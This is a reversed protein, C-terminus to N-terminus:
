GKMLNMKDTALTEKGRYVAVVIALGVAAEAAAIAMVFLAFAQGVSGGPQTAYHRAFAVFALNAANLMIEISILVILINRRVLVGFVGIGFLVSALILCNGLSLLSGEM